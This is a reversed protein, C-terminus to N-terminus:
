AGRRQSSSAAMCRRLLALTQVSLNGSEFVVERPSIQMLLTEFELLGAASLQDRRPPISYIRSLAGQLVGLSFEGVAADLFCVGFEGQRSEQM